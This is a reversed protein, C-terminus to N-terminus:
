RTRVSNVRLPFRLDKDRLHDRLLFTSFTVENRVEMANHRISELSTSKTNFGFHIGEKEVTSKYAKRKWKRYITLCANIAM